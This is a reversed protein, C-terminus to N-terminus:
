GTSSYNIIRGWRQEKTIPSAHRICNFYSKPKGLTVRDCLEETMEWVPAHGFTGANNVLIDIKGFNDVATQILRGAVEFSSVDGFFSMAEGGIDRIAKATTETDGAIRHADEKEEATLKKNFAKGDVTLGTSGPRRNNTVVKAGEKTM